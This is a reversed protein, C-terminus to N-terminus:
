SKQLWGVSDILKLCLYQQMLLFCRSM